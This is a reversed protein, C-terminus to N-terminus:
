APDEAFDRIVKFREVMVMMDPTWSGQREFYAQYQARYDAADEFEAMPAVMEDTVEGIPLVHVELTEMQLAPSGDWNLAIDQRGVEPLPEKGPGFDSMAACTATKKGSRVLALLENCFAETDGFKFTVPTM